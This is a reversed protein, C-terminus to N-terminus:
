GIFRINHEYNLCEVFIVYHYLHKNSRPYIHSNIVIQDNILFSHLNYNFNGVM